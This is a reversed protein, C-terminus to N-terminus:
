YDDDEDAEEDDVEEDDDFDDIDGVEDFDDEEAEEYEEEEEDEEIIDFEGDEDEIHIGDEETANDRYSEWGEDNDMNDQVDEETDYEHTKECEECIDGSAIRKGCIRCTGVEYLEDREETIEEAEAEEYVDETYIRKGKMEMLCIDCYEQKESDYWNIDCRPCKKYKAM